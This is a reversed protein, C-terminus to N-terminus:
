HMHADSLYFSHLIANMADALILESDFCGIPGLQAVKRIEINKHADISLWESEFYIYFIRSKQFHKLFFFRIVLSRNKM